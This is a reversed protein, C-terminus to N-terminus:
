IRNIYVKIKHIQASKEEVLLLAENLKENVVKLLEEQDVHDDLRDIAKQDVFPLTLYSEVTYGAQQAIQQMDENSFQGNKWLALLGNLNSELLWRLAKNEKFRGVSKDAALVIPQMPQSTM